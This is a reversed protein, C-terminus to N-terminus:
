LCHFQLISKYFQVVGKKFDNLFELFQNLKSCFSFYFNLHFFNGFIVSLEIPDAEVTVEEVVFTKLGLAPM